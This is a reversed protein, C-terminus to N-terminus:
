GICIQLFMILLFKRCSIIQVYLVNLICLCKSWMVMICYYWIFNPLRYQFIYHSIIYEPKSLQINLSLTCICRNSKHWRALTTVYFIRSLNTDYNFWILDFWILNIEPSLAWLVFICLFSHYLMTSCRVTIIFIFVIHEQPM